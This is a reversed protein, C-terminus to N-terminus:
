GEVHSGQPRRSCVHGSSKRMARAWEHLDVYIAEIRRCYESLSAHSLVSRRAALALRAALEPERILRDLRDAYSVADGAAVLFGTQGDQVVEPIGATPAALVPVGAAQAELVSLPLGEHTSPLLFADAARLLDPADTRHGLLRVHERLGLSEVLSRLRATYVGEGGREVGALWCAAPVGRQHLEAVARITTEQGKHAALNAFMVILPVGAPAGVHRKAAEKDAAPSFRDTDVPNPVAEIRAVDRLRAPLAERIPEVLM